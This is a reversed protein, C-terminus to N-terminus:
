TGFDILANLFPFFYVFRTRRFVVEFKLAVLSKVSLMLRGKVVSFWGRLFIFLFEYLSSSFKYLM